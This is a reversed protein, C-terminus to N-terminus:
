VPNALSRSPLARPGPWFPLPARRLSSSFAQGECLPAQRKGESFASRSRLTLCKPRSHPPGNMKAKIRRNSRMLSFSRFYASAAMSARGRVPWRQCSMAAPTKRLSSRMGSVLWLRCRLNSTRTALGQGVGDQQLCFTEEGLGQAISGSSLSPQRHCPFPRARTHSHRAVRDQSRNEM